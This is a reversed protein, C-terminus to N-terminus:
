LAAIDYNGRVAPSIQLTKWLTDSKIQLTEVSDLAMEQTGYFCFVKGSNLVISGPLCRAANLSPLETWKNYVALYNECTSLYSLNFGGVAVLQSNLGSLSHSQRAQRM